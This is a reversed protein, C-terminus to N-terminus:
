DMGASRRFMWSQVDPQNLCWITYGCRVVGITASVLTIIGAIAGILSGIMLLSALLAFGSLILGLISAGILFTRVAEKGSLVGWILFANLLLGLVNLGVGDMAVQAISSLLNLGLLALLIILKEPM